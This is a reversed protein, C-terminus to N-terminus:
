CLSRQCPPQERREKSNGEHETRRNRMRSRLGTQVSVVLYHVTICAVRSGLGLMRGVLVAAAGDADEAERNSRLGCSRNMRDQKQGPEQIDSVIDSAM